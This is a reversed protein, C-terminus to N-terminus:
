PWRHCYRVRARRTISGPAHTDVQRCQESGGEARLGRLEDGIGHRGGGAVGRGDDLGLGAAEHGCPEAARGLTLGVDGDPARAALAALPGRRVLEHALRLDGAIVRHQEVGAVAQQPEVVLEAGARAGPGGAAHGAAVAAAGPGRGLVQGGAEVPGDAGLRQHEGVAGDDAAARHFAVSRPGAPDLAAGIM